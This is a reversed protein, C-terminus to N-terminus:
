QRKFQGPATASGPLKVVNSPLSEGWLNAAKVRLQHAGATTFTVTATKPPGASPAPSDSRKVTAVREWAGSTANLQEVRYEDTEAQAAASHDWAFSIPVGAPLTQASAVVASLILAIFVVLAWFSPRWPLSPCLATQM